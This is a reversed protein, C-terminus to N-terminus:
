CSGGAAQCSGSAAQSKVGKKTLKALCFKDERRIYKFVCEDGESLENFRKFETWGASLYYRTYHHSDLKLRMQWEKGDLNKMTVSRETDIGALRAFDVPLRMSRTHGVSMIIMFFPDDDGDVDGGGDDGDDVEEDRNLDDNKVPFQKECGSPSFISLKFTSPDVLWFVLFDGYRLQSDEVVSNWGNVFCYNDGLKIIKLRWSYGGNVSLLVPNEPIKNELHKSVFAHPLPLHPASPDLLIKSFSHLPRRAM